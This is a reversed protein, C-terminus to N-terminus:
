KEPGNKKAKVRSLADQIYNRKAAREKKVSPDESLKVRRAHRDAKIEKEKLLRAIKEQFRSSSKEKSFTFAPIEDIIICDVPCPEVCLGCGTCEDTIISHMQKAAGIIADVPCATICKTCGICDQEVITAIEPRRTQEIVKQRMSDSACSDTIMAIAELVDTGGPTCKTIDEGQEVIAQAYPQCGQYGCDRCQTQPLIADIANITDLKSM